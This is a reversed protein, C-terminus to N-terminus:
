VAVTDVTDVHDVAEYTQEFIHPKVPYFEGAVGRVIFDGIHAIMVGELTRVTLVFGDHVLVANSAPPMGAHAWALLEHLNEGTWRNAEIVVPKKQYKM